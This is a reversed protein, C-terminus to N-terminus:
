HQRYFFLSRPAILARAGLEERKSTQREALRRVAHAAARERKIRALRERRLIALRRLFKM